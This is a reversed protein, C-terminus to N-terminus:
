RPAGVSIVGAGVEHSTAGTPRARSVMASPVNFGWSRYTAGLGAALASAQSTGSGLVLMGRGDEFYASPISVPPAAVTPDGSNSFYALKLQADVGSVAMVGPYAAPWAKVGAQENGVSAFVIAGAQQADKVANRVVSADGYSGMSINIIQAGNDIATYIGQALLFSDSERDPGAVRVDLIGAAPAVGEAGYQTGAILSAMATGHGDIPQGDQVLDFHRVQGPRFTPHDFVGTDLVAVTVGQGWTSRDTNAGLAPMVSDGFPASGAASRDEAPPLGPVKVLYNAGVDEYADPNNLLESRLSELRDYAVRAANLRDM